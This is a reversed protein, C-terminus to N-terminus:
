FCAKMCTGYTKDCRDCAALICPTKCTQWTARCRGTCAESPAPPMVIAPPTPAATAPSPSPSPSAALGGDSDSMTKPPTAFANTTAPEEHTVSRSTGGGPAAGMVAEDTPALHAEQLAQARMSAYDVRNRTQGYTYNKVWSSWCDTKEQMPVTPTDDIAYCHEFRADGEYVVQFSPGCAGLALATWLLSVRVGALTGPAALNEWQNTM